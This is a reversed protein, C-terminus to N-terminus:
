ARSSPTADLFERLLPMVLDARFGLDHKLGDVLRVRWGM